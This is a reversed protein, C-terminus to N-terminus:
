SGQTCGGTRKALQVGARRGELFARFPALSCRRLVAIACAAGLGLNLWFFCFSNAVGRRWHRYYLYTHAQLFRRMWHDRARGIGSQNHVLRAAPAILLVAEPGLRMCFDVDEGDSVGTLAEDFAADRIADASFSMLGGGLRTVRQPALTRHRAAHWYVPQRDDRFPGRVFLWSWLRSGTEPRRYNTVVGSIGTAEPHRRYVRKLQELFGAELEVDDDLFLLFSGRALRLARNRAAALGSIGPDRIYRLRTRKQVGAPAGAYQIAAQRESADGPSQDIVLIETPLLRQRFLSNLTAALDAPRNKTPIVVSFSDARRDPFRPELPRPPKTARAAGAAHHLSSSTHLRSGNRQTEKM